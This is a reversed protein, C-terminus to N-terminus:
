ARQLYLNFDPPRVDKFGLQTVHQILAERTSGFERLQHDYAEVIIAPSQSAFFANMGRLAHLDAGEIDM